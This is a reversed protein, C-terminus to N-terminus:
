GFLNLSLRTLENRPMWGNRLWFSRARDNGAEVDLHVWGLHLDRFRELCIGVMKQAIGRRQFSQAVAVHQLFGRRGDHSGLACGVIAGDSRAVLSLGPNRALLRNIGELTDTRPRIVFGSAIWLHRVGEYDSTSMDAIEITESMKQNETLKQFYLRLVHYTEHPM